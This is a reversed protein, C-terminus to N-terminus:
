RRTVNFVLKTFLAKGSEYEDFTKYKNYSADGNVSGREYRGDIEKIFDIKYYCNMFWYNEPKVMEKCCPCLVQDEQHIILNWNEVYGIPIYIRDNYAECGNNKCTSQITLGNCGTKYSPGSRSPEYEKTINKTVDVTEIGGGRVNSTVSIAMEEPEFGKVDQLRQNNDTLIEGDCKWQNNGGNGGKDVFLERLEGITISKDVKLIIQKLKMDIITVIVSM